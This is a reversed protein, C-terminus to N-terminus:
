RSMMFQELKTFFDERFIQNDSLNGKISSQNYDRSRVVIFNEISLGPHNSSIVNMINDSSTNSLIVFLKDAEQYEIYKQDDFFCQGRENFAFYNSCPWESYNPIIFIQLNAKCLNTYINVLDDSSYPCSTIDEFCEYSCKSCPNVELEAFHFSNTEYELQTLYEGIFSSVFYSNGKNQRGSFNVLTALM